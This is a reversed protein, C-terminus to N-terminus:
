TSSRASPTYTCSGSRMRRYPRDAVHEDLREDVEPYGVDEAHDAMRIEAEGVRQAPGFLAAFEGVDADPVLACCKKVRWGVVRWEVVEEGDEGRRRDEM